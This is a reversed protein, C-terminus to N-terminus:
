EAKWAKLGPVGPVGAWAACGPVLPRHLTPEAEKSCSCGKEDHWKGSGEDELSPQTSASLGRDMDAM